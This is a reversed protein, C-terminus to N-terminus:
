EDSESDSYYEGSSNWWNSQYDPEFNFKSRDILEHDFLVSTICYCNDHFWQPYSGSYCEFQKFKGNFAHRVLETDYLPVLVKVYKINSRLKILSVLNQRSATNIIISEICPLDNLPYEFKTDLDYNNDIIIERLNTLYKFCDYSLISHVHPQIKLKRLNCLNKFGHTAEQDVENIKLTELSRSISELFDINKTKKINLYKLKKLKKCINKTLEIRNIRLSEVNTFQSIFEAEESKYSGVVLLHKVYPILENPLAIAGRTFNIIVKVSSLSQPNRIINSIEVCPLNIFCISKM